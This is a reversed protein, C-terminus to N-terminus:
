RRYTDLMQSIYSRHLREDVIIREIIYKVFPDDIMKLHKLYTAIANTEGELAIQLSEHLDRSYVLDKANWYQENTKTSSRFVPDGGLKDIISALIDMHHMEAIAIRMAMVGYEGTDEGATYHHYFYMSMASFEGKPGAFDDMLLNAYEKNPAQVKIPPYPSADSYGKYVVNNSTPTM